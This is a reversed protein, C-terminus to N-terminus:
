QRVEVPRLAVVQFLRKALAKSAGVGELPWFYQGQAADQKLPIRPESLVRVPATCILMTGRATTPARDPCAASEAQGFKPDGSHLFIAQSECEAM